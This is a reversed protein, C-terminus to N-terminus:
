ESDEKLRDPIPVIEVEYIRAIDPMRHVLKTEYVTKSGACEPPALNIIVSDENGEVISSDGHKLISETREQCTISSSASEGDPIVIVEGIVPSSVILGISALLSM